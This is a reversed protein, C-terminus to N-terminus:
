CWLKTIRFAYTEIRQELEKIANPKYGVIQRSEFGGMICYYNRFTYFSSFGLIDPHLLKFQSYLDECGKTVPAGSMIRRYPALESLKIANKTRLATMSKIRVSEDIVMMSRFKRLTKEILAYSKKNSLADVNFAIVKLDREDNEISEIAKISQKTSARYIYGSYPIPMHLRLQENIWQAHVGNPAFILLCDIKGKQCLYAANDIVVKTKGTGMEMFYAYYHQDRSILFARKQHEFPKTKYEYDDEQLESYKQSNLKLENSERRNYQELHEIASQQWEVESGKQVLVEINKGSPELLLADNLFKKYGPLELALRRLQQFEGNIILKNKWQRIKM